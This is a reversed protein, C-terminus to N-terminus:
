LFEKEHKEGSPLLLLANHREHTGSWMRVRAEGRWFLEAKNTSRRTMRAGEWWMKMSRQAALPLM